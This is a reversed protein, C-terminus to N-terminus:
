CWLKLVRSDVSVYLSGDSGLVMKRPTEIQTHQPDYPYFMDPNYQGDAGYGLVVSVNGSTAEVKFVRAASSAALFLNGHADFVIGFVGNFIAITDDTIAKLGEPVPQGNFDGSYVVKRPDLGLISNYVLVTPKYIAGDLAYRMVGQHGTAHLHGAHFAVDTFGFGRPSLPIDEMPLSQISPTGGDMAIRHVPTSHEYFPAYVDCTEPHVALGYICPGSMLVEVPLTSELPDLRGVGGGGGYPCGPSSVSLYVAGDCGVAVGHPHQTNPDLAVVTSINGTSANVLRIRGNGTDAILLNGDVDLALGEPRNLYAETAPGGDGGYAYVPGGFKSWPVGAVLSVHTYEPCVRRTPTCGKGEEWAFDSLCGCTFGGGPVDFCTGNSNQM